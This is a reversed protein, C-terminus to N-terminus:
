FLKLNAYICLIIFNDTLFPINKQIFLINFFILFFERVIYSIKKFIVCTDHSYM